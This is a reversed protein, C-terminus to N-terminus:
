RRSASLEEVALVAHRDGTQVLEAGLSLLAAMPGWWPATRHFPGYDAALSAFPELTGGDRAANVEGSLVMEPSADDLGLRSERWISGHHTHLDYRCMSRWVISTGRSAEDVLASALELAEKGLSVVSILALFDPAFESGRSPGRCDRCPETESDFGCPMLVGTNRCHQCWWGPAMDPDAWSDPALGAEVLAATAERPSGYIWPSLHVIGRPTRAVSAGTRHLGSVGAPRDGTLAWVADIM